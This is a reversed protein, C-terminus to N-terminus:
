NEATKKLCRKSLIGFCIGGFVFGATNSIIDDIDFIGRHSIVQTLELLIIYPLFCIILMLNSLKFKYKM